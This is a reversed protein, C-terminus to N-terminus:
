EEQGDCPIGSSGDARWAGGGGICNGLLRPMKRGGLWRFGGKSKIIAYELAIILSSGFGKLNKEILLLDNFDHIRIKELQPIHKKFTSLEYDISYVFSPNEHRGVSTGSSASATHGEYEVEVAPKDACNLIKRATIHM